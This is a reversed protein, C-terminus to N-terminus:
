AVIVQPNEFRKAQLSGASAKKSLEPWYDADFVVTDAHEALYAKLAEHSGRQIRGGEFLTQDAPEMRLLGGKAGSFNCAASRTGGEPGFVNGSLELVLSGKSDVLTMITRGKGSLAASSVQRALSEVGIDKLKAAKRCRLESLEEKLKPVDEAQGSEATALAYLSKYRAAEIKAAELEEALTSRDRKLKVLAEDHRGNSGALDDLERQLSKSRAQADELQQMLDCNSDVLRENERRYHAVLKWLMKFAM